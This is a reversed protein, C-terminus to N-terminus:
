VPLHCFVIFGKQNEAKGLYAPPSSATKYVTRLSNVTALWRKVPLGKIEQTTLSAWTCYRTFFQIEKLLSM